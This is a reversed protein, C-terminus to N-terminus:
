ARAALRRPLLGADEVDRLPAAHAGLQRRRVLARHDRGAAPLRDAHAGRVRDLGIAEPVPERAYSTSRARSPTPTATTAATRGTTAATSRCTGSCAGCRTATARRARSWTTRTSPATSTAGTTRSGSRRAAALDSARIDDYLMGDPNASALIRDLMRGLPARWSARRAAPRADSELAHLLTLGVVIENGHDRLRMRDPGEHKEFDWTYGPLGHNRPCSRRARLRRRHARAWELFRRDGTM